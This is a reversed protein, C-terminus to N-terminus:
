PIGHVFSRAALYERSNLVAENNGNVSGFQFRAHGKTDGICCPFVRGYADFITAMYLWDCHNATGNAAVDDAVYREAYQETFAREIDEAVPSIDTNMVAPQIPTLHTCEWARPHAEAIVTPDDASVDIPTVVFFMDIGLERAKAMAADLEHVNHQFTLYHWRIFPTSSNRARKAEVLRRVNEFVLSVDGGRRYKEYVKQTVGDIAIQLEDLGSAVIADVDLKPISMNSSTSTRVRFQAARKIFAHTNKNLYPESNNYFHGVWAWPGNDDIIRSYTNGKMVGAPWANLVRAAFDKNSTNACSACGLNCGNAPDLM